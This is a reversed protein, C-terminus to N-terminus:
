TRSYSEPCIKQWHGIELRIQGSCIYFQERTRSPGLGTQCTNMDSWDIILLRAYLMRFSSKCRLWTLM